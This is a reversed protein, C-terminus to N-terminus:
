LQNITQDMTDLRDLVYELFSNFKEKTYDPIDSDSWKLFDRQYAGSSFLQKEYQTIIKKISQNSWSSKRLLQYQKKVEQITEQDGSMILSYIPNDKMMYQNNSSSHYYGFTDNLNWPTFQLEYSHNRHLFSLSTNWFSNSDVHNSAQTFLYFLYLELSNSNQIRYRLKEKDSSLIDQYYEDLVAWADDEDCQSCDRDFVRNVIRYDNSINEDSSSSEKFFVYDGHQYSYGDSEISPGFSYLGYYQHNIFVEVYQLNDISDENMHNWLNTSFLNRIKEDDSSLSNLFYNNHKQMGLISVPNQRINRGLSKQHFSIQFDSKEGGNQIIDIDGLSTGVKHFANPHNDFVTIKMPVNKDDSSSNYDINIVPLTTVVLDYVQYYRDNYIMVPISENSSIVSDTLKDQFVIKYDKDLFDIVPNNKQFSSMQSYYMKHNEEDILLPFDNFKIEKLVINKRENRSKQIQNWRKQSVVYSHYRERGQFLFIGFILLFTFFLVSVLWWRRRM